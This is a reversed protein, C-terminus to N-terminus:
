ALKDFMFHSASGFVNNIDYLTGATEYIHTLRNCAKPVHHSVVTRRDPSCEALSM